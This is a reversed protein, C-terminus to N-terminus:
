EESMLIKITLSKEYMGVQVDEIKGLTNLDLMEGFGISGTLEEALGARYPFIVQCSGVGRVIVEFSVSELNGTPKGDAWGSKNVPDSTPVVGNLGAKVTQFSIKSIKSM